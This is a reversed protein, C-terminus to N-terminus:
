TTRTRARRVPVPERAKEERRAAAGLVRLDEKAKNEVRTIKRQVSKVLDAAAKRRKEKTKVLADSALISGGRGLSQRAKLKHTAIQGARAQTVEM